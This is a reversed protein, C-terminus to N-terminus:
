FRYENYKTQFAELRYIMKMLQGADKEMGSEELVQVASYMRDKAVNIDYSANKMTNQKQERTMKREKRRNRGGTFADKKAM